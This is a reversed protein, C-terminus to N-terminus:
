PWPMQDWWKMVFLLPFLPVLILSKNQPGGFDSHITVAAMFHFSAQGQFLAIVFNSQMNFLLFDMLDMYDFSIKGTTMYPQSFQIMFFASCWLTGIWCNEKANLWYFYYCIVVCFVKHLYVGLTWLLNIWLQLISSAFLGNMEYNSLYYKNCGYLPISNLSLLSHILSTNLLM